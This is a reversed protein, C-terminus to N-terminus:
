VIIPGSPLGIIIGLFGVSFSLLVYLTLGALYFLASCPKGELAAPPLYVGVKTLGKLHQSELQYIRQEGEFCRNKQLLQM